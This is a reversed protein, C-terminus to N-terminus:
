YLSSLIYYSNPLSIGKPMEPYKGFEGMLLLLLSTFFSSVPQPKLLLVFMLMGLKVSFIADLCYKAVSGFELRFVHCYCYLEVVYSM